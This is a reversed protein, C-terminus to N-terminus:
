DTSFSIIRINPKIEGEENQSDKEPVEKDFNIVIERSAGPSLYIQGVDIKEENQPIQRQLDLEGGAQMRIYGIGLIVKNILRNTSNQLKAHVRFTLNCDVGECPQRITEIQIDRIELSGSTITGLSSLYHKAEEGWLLELQYDTIDKSPVSITFSYKEEAKIVTQLKNKAQTLPLYSLGLPQGDSLSTLKVIVDKLSWDTAASVTGLIHLRDGDNVEDSIQLSFPLSPKGDKGVAPASSSFPNLGSLTSCSGLSFATLIIILYRTIM